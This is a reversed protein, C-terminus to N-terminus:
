GHQTVMALDNRHVLEERGRYGLVAEIEGSRLGTIRAADASGYASLGRGLILGRSDRILVADGREFEGSVRLVGAPLLSKGGALAAAAGDDVIIEGRPQLSGAIWQKRVRAPSAAAIFWTCRAGDEIAQVPHQVRGSAIVMHCGAALAIRGAAVKTIMGGSGVDTAAKGAMAEIDSTVTRVEAVLMAEPDRTPDATYLGDTDSLLLLCDASIMQAVRAALRDNDGYRIEETAVTDNENIVPVAGLALLTELTSRANLYRRRQETDGLTLLVQAVPIEHRGLAEQWAHALRIQGAAAAAQSEELRLTGHRLGLHRRGLAIAGSSVVLVEQGRKRLRAIDAVLGEFWAADLQGSAREVLLASGIKVVVRRAAAIRNVPLERTNTNMAASLM